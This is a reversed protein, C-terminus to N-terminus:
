LSTRRQNHRWAAADHVTGFSRPQDGARAVRAARKAQKREPRHRRAAPHRPVSVAVRRLGPVHQLALQREAEPVAGLCRGGTREDEDRRTDHVFEAIGAVLGRAEELEEDGAPAFPEVQLARRQLLGLQGPWVALVRVEIRLGEGSQSALVADVEDSSEPPPVRHHAASAEALVQAALGRLAGSVPLRQGRAAELRDIISAAKGREVAKVVLLALMLRLGLILVNPALDRVKVDIQRQEARDAASANDGDVFRRSSAYSTSCVTKQRSTPGGACSPPPSVCGAAGISPRRRSRV